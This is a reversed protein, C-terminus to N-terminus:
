LAEGDRAMQGILLSTFSVSGDTVVETMYDPEADPYGKRHREWGTLLARTAEAQDRGLAVFSFHRTEVSALVLPTNAQRGWQASIGAIYAQMWQALDGAALRPSVEVSGGARYLRPQGYAYVIRHEQGTLREIIAALHDLDPRTTRVM